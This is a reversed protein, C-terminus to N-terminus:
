ETMFSGYNQKVMADSVSSFRLKTSFDTMLLKVNLQRSSIPIDDNIISILTSVVDPKLIIDFLTQIFV